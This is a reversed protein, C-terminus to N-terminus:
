LASVILVVLPTLLVLDALATREDRDLSRRIIGRSRSRRHNSFRGEKCSPSKSLWALLFASVGLCAFLPMTSRFVLAVALANLALVVCFKRIHRAVSPHRTAISVKGQVLDLDREWTAISICNFACLAAFLVVAIAFIPTFPPGPLLAVMTGAAFLVGIALEKAPLSRWILGLPHNLVLYILALVGVVAGVIVTAWATTRWIVYADFGAVLAVTAIWIERHRLCFDQRFSRPLNPNLSSADAVRDALYILWATLFLAVTNGFQLSVHFTRAFLWLWATAVLPADLCVLNLWTSLPYVEGAPKEEIRPLDAQQAKM